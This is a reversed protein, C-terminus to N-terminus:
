SDAIIYVQGSCFEVHAAENVLMGHGLRGERDGQIMDRSVLRGPWIELIAFFFGIIIYKFVFEQSGTKLSVLEVKADNRLSICQM